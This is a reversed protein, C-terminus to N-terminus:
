QSYDSNKWEYHYCSRYAGFANNTYNTNISNNNM